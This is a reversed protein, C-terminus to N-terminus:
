RWDTHSRRDRILPRGARQAATLRELFLGRFLRSLVRISLFFSPQCAIRHRGGAQAPAPKRRTWHYTRASPPGTNIGLHAVRRHARHPRRFISSLMM